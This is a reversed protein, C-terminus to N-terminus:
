SAPELRATLADLVEDAQKHTLGKASEVAFRTKIWETFQARSETPLQSLLQGITKVQDSDAPDPGLPPEAEPRRGRPNSPAPLAPGHSPESSLAKSSPDAPLPPTVAPIPVRQTGRRGDELPAAQPSSVAGISALVEGIPSAVDVVPVAFRRTEQGPRKVSRQDLRLKAPLAQGRASAAALLQTVGGLEAAAYYGHTELRWTGIGPILPLIVWLRTTPKCAKGDSALAQREEPDAPCLCPRMKLVETRGDCRRQCGGGSWMENWQDLVQMPALAIDLEKADTFVEFQQGDGGDWPRPDGGYIEAVAAVLDLSASTLRFTELKSPRQKGSSTEVKSGLRIRGLERLKQQIDIIPM